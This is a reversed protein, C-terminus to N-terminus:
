RHRWHHHRHHRHHWGHRWGDSFGIGIGFVPPPPAVYVPPEAAYVPGGGGLYSASAYGEIGRFSVRCWSGTCGLIAVNAGAPMTDIVRYSTGPGSRLNLDGEVVAASAVGASGLLLAVAL